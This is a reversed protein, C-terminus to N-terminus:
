KKHYRIANEIFIYILVNMYPRKSVSIIRGTDLVRIQNNPLFFSTFKGAQTTEWKLM